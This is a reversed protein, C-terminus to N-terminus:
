WPLCCASAMWAQLMKRYGARALVWSIKEAGETSRLKAAEEQTRLEGFMRLSGALSVSNVDAWPTPPTRSSGSLGARTTLLVLQVGSSSKPRRSSARRRYSAWARSRYPEPM